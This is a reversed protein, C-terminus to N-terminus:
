GPCPLVVTARLGGGARNQLRIDGGHARVTSRAIALGLGAGGTDRSRSSELRVFPEFVRELEAEIIGPGRDEVDIRVDANCRAVRVQAAGGYRAANEVLNSLARRLAMPRCPLVIRDAADEVSADLGQAALDEVVSEVLAVLDTARTPEGTADGQAFALGAEAMAQMEDLTGIMRTRTNEDDVFEARLRLTTIPTRLDHAVAALMTTRDRVFRDLRERMQNFARVTRRTEEPGDEPLAEVPEGRGLRDAADALRRLPRALRRAALAAVATVAVASLLLAALVVGGLPPVQPRGTAANLWQGSELRVSVGLWRPRRRPPRADDDGRWFPEAAIEVRVDGADRALAAALRASVADADPGANESVQAEAALTVRLAASSATAAVRGHLESPSDEILQVLSVLRAAANERYAARYASGRERAFLALGLAQAVLLAAVLLLALQGGLSRPLLRM